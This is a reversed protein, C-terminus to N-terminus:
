SGPTHFFHAARSVVFAAPHAASGRSFYDPVPDGPTVDWVAIQTRWSRARGPAPAAICGMTGRRDEQTAPTGPRLAQPFTLDLAM